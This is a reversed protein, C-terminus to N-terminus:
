GRYIDRWGRRWRRGGGVGGCVAAVAVAAAAAVESRRRRWCAVMGFPKLSTSLATAPNLSTSPSFSPRMAMFCCSLSFSSRSLGTRRMSSSDLDLDVVADLRWWWRRRRRRWFNVAAATVVV